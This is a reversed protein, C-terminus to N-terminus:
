RSRHKLREDRYVVESAGLGIRDGDRLRVSRSGLESGQIRTGNESDTDRLVFEGTSSFTIEAHLCSVSADKELSLDSDTGRGVRVPKGTLVFKAGRHPGKVVEMWVQANRTSTSTQELDSTDVTTWGTSSSLDYANMGDRGEDDGWENDNSRRARRVIAIAIVVAVGILLVWAATSNPPDVGPIYITVHDSSTDGALDAAVAFDQNGSRFPGRVRVVYQNKLEQAIERYLTVTQDPTAARRSRGGTLESIHALVENNAQSGYGLTYFPVGCKQAEDVAQRLSVMSGEDKGDTLFVVACRSSPAMKAERSCRVIASYLLTNTGTASLGGIISKLQEHDRTYHAPVRVEHAFTVLCVADKPGLQDVFSEAGEIVSKMPRGALSLSTDVAMVISM